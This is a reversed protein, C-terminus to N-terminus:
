DDEIRYGAEELENSAEELKRVAASDQFRRGLDELGDADGEELATQFEDFEGAFGRMGDVLKDHSDEVDEPPAVDDLEDATSEIEDQLNGVEEAVADLSGGEQGVNGLATGVSAGARELQQSARDLERQYEDRSLRDDGGGCAAALAVVAAVALGATWRDM